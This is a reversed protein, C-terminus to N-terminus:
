GRPRSQDACSWTRASRGSGRPVEEVAAPESALTLLVVRAQRFVEAPSAAVRAGAARVPGAREPSRHWVVLPTGARALNCAMPQGMVGLGIFGLDM